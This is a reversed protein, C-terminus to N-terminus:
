IRDESDSGIEFGDDFNATWPHRDYVISRIEVRNKRKIGEQTKAFM